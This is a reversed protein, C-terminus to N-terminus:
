VQCLSSPEHKTSLEYTLMQYLSASYSNLTLSFRTIIHLQISVLRPSRLLSRRDLIRTSDAANRTFSCEAWLGEEQFLPTLEPHKVINWHSSAPQEEEM